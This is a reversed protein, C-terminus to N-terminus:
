EQIITNSGKSVFDNALTLIDDKLESKSSIIKKYLKKQGDQSLVKAIIHVM